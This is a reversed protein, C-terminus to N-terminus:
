DFIQSDPILILNYLYDSIMLLNLNMTVYIPWMKKMSLGDQNFGYFYFIDDFM